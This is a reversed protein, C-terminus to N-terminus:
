KRDAGSAKLQELISISSSSFSSGVSRNTEEGAECRVLNRRHFVLGKSQFGLGFSGFGLKSSSCSVNKENSILLDVSSSTMASTYFEMAVTM